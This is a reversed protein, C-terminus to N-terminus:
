LKRTLWIALGTAACFGSAFGAMIVTYQNTATLALVMNVGALLFNIISGLIADKFGM